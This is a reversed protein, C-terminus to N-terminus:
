ARSKARDSTGVSASIRGGTRKGKRGREVLSKAYALEAILMDAVLRVRPISLASRAAVLAIRAKASPGLDLDLPVLGTKRSYRHGTRSLAIAGLGAEAAAVQVLFNDSTFSPTFGPVAAALQPNPPLSDFPPSWAVFDVDGYGYGKPLAAAYESAAFFAVEQELVALQVLDGTTRSVNRIALDAEGRSLDLLNVASLVELVIGPHKRKLAGAFPGVFDVAVGPAATVRVVGKPAGRPDDVARKMETAWEAMKRAPAVLREARPTLLVGTATRRFLRFGYSTELESLRRSMTPQAVGLARAAKGLSGAEAIALFVRVDDWSDNM